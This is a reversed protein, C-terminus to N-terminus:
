CVCYRDQGTTESGACSKGDIRMGTRELINYSQRLKKNGLKIDYVKAILKHRSVIFCHEQHINM